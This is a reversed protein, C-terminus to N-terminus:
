LCDRKKRPGDALVGSVRLHGRSHSFARSPLPVVRKKRRPSGGENRADRPKAEWRERARASGESFRFIFLSQECDLPYVAQRTILVATVQVQASKHGAHSKHKTGTVWTFWPRDDSHILTTRFLAITSLSEKSLQATITMLILTHTTQHNRYNVQNSLLTADRLTITSM